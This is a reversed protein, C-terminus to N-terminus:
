FSRRFYSVLRVGEKRLFDKLTRRDSLSSCIGCCVSVRMVPTEKKLRM